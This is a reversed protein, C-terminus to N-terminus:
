DSSKKVLISRIFVRSCSLQARDMRLLAGLSKMEMEFLPNVEFEKLATELEPKSTEKKKKKVYWLWGAGYGAGLILPVPSVLYGLTALLGVGMVTGMGKVEQKFSRDETSIKKIEKIKQHKKPEINEIWDVVMKVKWLAILEDFTSEYEYETEFSDRYRGLNKTEIKKVTNELKRNVCVRFLEHFKDPIRSFDLFLEAIPNYVEYYPLDPHFQWFQRIFFQNRPNDLIKPNVKKVPIANEQIIEYVM